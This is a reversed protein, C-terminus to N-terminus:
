RFLKQLIVFILVCRFAKGTCIKILRTRLNLSKIVRQMEPAESRNLLDGLGSGPAVSGKMHSLELHCHCNVFGPIIIGNHFEVSHEENLEGSTDEIGTVTGDDETSIVARKLLPSSNTITYQASFRKM